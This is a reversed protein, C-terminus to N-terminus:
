VARCEASSLRDLQGWPRHTWRGAKVRQVSLWAPDGWGGTTRM